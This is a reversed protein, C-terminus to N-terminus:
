NTIAARLDSLAEDLHASRCLRKKDFLVEYIYGSATNGPQKLVAAQPQEHSHRFMSFAAMAKTFDLAYDRWIGRAVFTSYLASVAMLEARTFTIDTKGTKHHSQPRAAELSILM